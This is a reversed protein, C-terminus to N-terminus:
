QIAGCTQQERSLDELRRKGATLEDRAALLARSEGLQGTVQKLAGQATEIETDLAQLQHLRSTVVKQTPTDM